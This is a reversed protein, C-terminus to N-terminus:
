FKEYGGGVRLMLSDRKLECSLRASGILYLDKKIWIIPITINNETIYRAIMQDIENDKRPKFEIPAENFLEDCQQDLEEESIGLLDVDTTGEAITFM